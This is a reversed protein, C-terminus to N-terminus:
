IDKLGKTVDGKEYTGTAMGTLAKGTTYILGETAKALADLSMAGTTGLVNRITTGLGSVVIAKSERELRNIARLANGMISPAEFDKGYLENVLKEAEPDLQAVKKLTRALASYGQMVNAADAVTTRTAQAFDEPTLNAKKLAADIVDNDINDMSIFVNKVADSVKQGNVPRFEPALMMVYKAVDIAKRNIDTRIQAQTLDTPQSLADLTRRGEFIDFENLLDDQSKDFAENLKKTNPDVTGTKSKKGALLDELEKKTTTIKGKIATGAEIGGGFASLASAIGLQLYDMEDRQVGTKRKVDQDIVNQGAGIVTEAGAAAGITKLKSSLV